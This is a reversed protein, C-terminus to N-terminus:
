AAEGYKTRLERFERIIESAFYSIGAPSEAMIRAVVFAAGYVRTGYPFNFYAANLIAQRILFTRSPAVRPFPIVKGSAVQEAVEAFLACTDSM